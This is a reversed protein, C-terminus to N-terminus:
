AKLLDKRAMKTVEVVVATAKAAFARESMLGIRAKPLKAAMRIGITNIRSIMVTGDKYIM